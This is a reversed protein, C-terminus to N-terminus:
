ATVLQVREFLHGHAWRVIEEVYDRLFVVKVASNADIKDMKSAINTAGPHSLWLMPRWLDDENAGEDTSIKIGEDRIRFDRWDDFSGNHLASCEVKTAIVVLSLSLFHNGVHVTLLCLIPVM